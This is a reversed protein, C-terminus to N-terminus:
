MPFFSSSLSKKARDLMVDLKKLQSRKRSAVDDILTFASRAKGFPLFDNLIICAWKIQYLPELLSYRFRLFDPRVDNAIITETFGCSIESDLIRDPQNTFDCLLKAPDDWGAYEFDIFRIEGNKEEIANHFGFDSPSIWRDEHCLTQNVMNDRRIASNIRDEIETWLPLLEKQVNESASKDYDDVVDIGSLREVRLRTSELHEKFSFCAESAPPLKRAVDDNRHSNISLIFLTAQQIDELTSPRHSAPKGQIYEYLALRRDPLNGLPQPVSRIGCSWVFSTFGYEHHLRDRPDDTSSFYSKLFFPQESTAVRFVRNNRGGPLPELNFHGTIGIDALLEATSGYLSGESIISV